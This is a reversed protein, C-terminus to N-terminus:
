AQAPLVKDFKFGKIILWLPLILEFLAGPIYLFNALGNGPLLVALLGSIFLAPYGVLGLLAIWRPVLRHKWLLVCLIFSMAALMIMAFQFVYSGFSLMVSALEGHAIKEVGTNPFLAIQAAAAVLLLAAEVLRFGFYGASIVPALQRLAAFFLLGIGAVALSNVVQLMIGIKLSGDAIAAPQTLAPQVLVDGILYSATSILFLLGISIATTRYTKTKM